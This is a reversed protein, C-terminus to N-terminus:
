NCICRMGEQNAVNEEVSNLFTSWFLKVGRTSQISRVCKFAKVQPEQPHLCLIWDPAILTGTNGFFPHFTNIINAKHGEHTHSCAKNVLDM